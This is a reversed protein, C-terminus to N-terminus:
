LRLRKEPPRGSRQAGVVVHHTRLVHDGQLRELLLQRSEWVECGLTSSLQARRRWIRLVTGGEEM